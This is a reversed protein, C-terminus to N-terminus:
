PPPLQLNSRPMVPAGRGNVENEPFGGDLALIVTPGTHGVPTPRPTPVAGGGQKWVYISFNTIDTMARSLSVAAVGFAISRDDFSKWNRLTGTRYFEDGIFPYLEESRLFARQITPGSGLGLMLDRDQGYYVLRMRALITDVYSRYGGSYQPERHDAHIVALPDNADLVLVSLFGLEEVLDGLPVPKKLASACRDIQTELAAALSGPSGARWSPPAQMGRKIGQDYRRHNLRVHRELDSPFFDVASWAVHRVAGESWGISLAAAIVVFVIRLFCFGSRM